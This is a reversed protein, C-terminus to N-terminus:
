ISTSTIEKIANIKNDIDNIIAIYQEKLDKLEELSFSGISMLIEVQEGKITTETKPTFLEFFQQTKHPSVVEHAIYSM